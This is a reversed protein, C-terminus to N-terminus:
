FLELWDASLLLWSGHDELSSSFFWAVPHLRAHLSDCHCGPGPWFGPVRVNVYMAHIYIYILLMLM